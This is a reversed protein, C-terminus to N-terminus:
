MWVCVCVYVYVCACACVVHCVRRKVHACICLFVCLEVAGVIEVCVGECGVDSHLAQGDRLRGDHRHHQHYELHHEHAAGLLLRLRLLATIGTAAVTMTVTAAHEGVPATGSCM